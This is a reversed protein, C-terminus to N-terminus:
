RRRPLDGPDARLADRGSSDYVAIAVPVVAGADFVHHFAGLIRAAADRDLFGGADHGGARASNMFAVEATVRTPPSPRNRSPMWWRVSPRFPRAPSESRRASWRSAAPGNLATSDPATKVAIMWDEVAAMRVTMPKTLAPSTVNECAIPTMMPAVSPVVEVGHSSAIKPKRTLIAVAARGIRPRPARSHITALPRSRDVPAIRAPKPSSNVAISYMCVPIFPTEHFKSPNVPGPECHIRAPLPITMVITMCLEVAAAAVVSTARFAPETVNACPQAMITPWLMPVVAVDASTIIPPLRATRRADSACMRKLETTPTRPISNKLGSAAAESHTPECSWSGSPTSASAANLLMKLNAPM